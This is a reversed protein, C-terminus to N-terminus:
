EKTSKGTVPNTVTEAREDLLWCSVRHNNGGNIMGPKEKKCIEMAYECRPAFPCGVPPNFLDPPTGDISSLKEKERDIDLRPISKILGWTYPHKPDKFIDHVSAEEMIEGGYMVIVREALDAVVGLDHTILIIATNMKSKLENMLDLIQAQVTVDLATTPEDAILLDPNCALAIAIVVRQRMGGSFQHPYSNLREEPNPINVAKLMELAKAMAEKHSVKQHMMIGEAIQKGVTMTPNLSTMPDQFIMGIEGGRIKRMEAENMKVIDRDKFLIEGSAIRGPPMPILKMVTQVTVSKGSGSEGVIALSEGKNIHFSVDRIAKVVGAYTDFYVHLNKVDLIKESM